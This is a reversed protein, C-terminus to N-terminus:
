SEPVYRRYEARRQKLCKIKRKAECKQLTWLNHENYTIKQQKSGQGVINEEYNQISCLM